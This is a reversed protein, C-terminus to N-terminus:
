GPALSAAHGWERYPHRALYSAFFRPDGTVERGIWPPLEIGENESELEVEALVLGENEGAYVDIEWLQARGVHFRTKDLLLGERLDLLTRAEEVPVPYEFELRTPGAGASKIALIARDDDEIRIRVVARGTDALYAQRLRRGADAEARWAPSAVLFKREIELAM